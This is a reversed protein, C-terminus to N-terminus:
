LVHLIKGILRTHMGALQEWLKGTRLADWFLTGPKGQSMFLQVVFLLM